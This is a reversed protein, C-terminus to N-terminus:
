DDKQEGKMTQLPTIGIGRAGRKLMSELIDVRIVTYISQMDALQFISTDGIAELDLVGKRLVSKDLNWESGAALCPIQKLIPLYYTERQPTEMDLLIIQKSIIQPEYLTAVDMCKKSLLLFPSSIVDTFVVYPNPRINLIQRRAIKHSFGPRINRPDIKGSWDLLEPSDVYRPDSHLLFYNM